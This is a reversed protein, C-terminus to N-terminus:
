DLATQLWSPEPVTRDQELVITTGDEGTLVYICKCCSIMLSFGHGIGAGGTSFGAELTARPLRSLDIGKGKDEIWVQVVGATVDGYVKATGGGAHVAANMACESAATVLDQTQEKPLECQAAVEGVRTRLDKLTKPSLTIPDGTPEAAIPAPLDNRTDCLWLRGQTVSALVDKLFRRQQELAEASARERERLRRETMDRTVKAFGRLHGEKDRLATIVVNAWFRTGDKRVRWGEEEYRGDRAAIQLENWPHRRAIDEPTYFRSFHQGIIEDEKYGKFREAGANWTAINGFPDLLFIAYDRVGEVLLRFREESQDLYDRQRANAQELRAVLREREALMEEREQERRREANINRFYVSLGKESPYGRVDYWSDLPPPYYETFSVTVRERVARRYQTDFASGVAAPFEEWIIKGLLDSRPRLLAREAEANIYTFRWKWDVAFFADTISELVAQTEHQASEAVRFLRANDLAVAARHALDEAMEVTEQTFTRGSAQTTAFTIAGTTKGRATLPVCLYSRLDLKRILRLHEEDRAASALVADPIEPLFVTKGTSIAEVVPQGTQTMDIPYRRQAERVWQVEAPAAHAVALNRISGKADDPDVIHVAAWDCLSSVALHTISHLTKEYDLSDVLLESAKALFALHSNARQAEDCIQEARELTQEARQLSLSRDLALACQRALDSLVVQDTLSFQRKDPFSFHLGGFVHGRAALPLSASAQFFGERVQSVMEPYRAQWDARSEFWLINNERVADSLPLRADLSFHEWGRLTVDHYGVAHVVELSEGDDSVLAVLGARAGLLAMGRDVVASVVEVPTVCELLTATLPLLKTSASADDM